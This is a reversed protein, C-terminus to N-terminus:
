TEEEANDPDVFVVGGEVKVHHRRLCAARPNVGKGDRVDYQWEHVACTLVHGELRGQSLLAGKHACRDDYAHVADHTHVLLIKKGAVDVSRMEGSWFEDLRAVAHFSM